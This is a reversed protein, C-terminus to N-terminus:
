IYGEGDFLYQIAQQIEAARKENAKDRTETDESSHNRDERNLNSLGQYFVRNEAAIKEVRERGESSDMTREVRIHNM